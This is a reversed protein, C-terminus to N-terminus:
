FLSLDILRHKAGGGQFLFYQIDAYFVFAQWDMDEPTVSMKLLKLMWHTSVNAATVTICSCVDPIYLLVTCKCPMWMQTSYMHLTESRVSEEWHRERVCVSVSASKERVHRCQLGTHTFQIAWSVEVSYQVVFMNGSTAYVGLMWTLHERCVCVSGTHSCYHWARYSGTVCSRVDNIPCMCCNAHTHQCILMSHIIPQM